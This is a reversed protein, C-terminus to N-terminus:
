VSFKYPHLKLYVFDDVQFQVERRGHDSQKKMREQALSLNRKLERLVITRDHFLEDVAQVQTTGPVYPLRFKHQVQCMLSCVQLPCVTSWKLHLPKQPQISVLTTVSNLGYYGTLGIKQNTEQM